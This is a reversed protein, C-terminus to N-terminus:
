LISSGSLLDEGVRTPLTAVSYFRWLHVNLLTVNALAPPTGCCAPPPCWYSNGLQSAGPQKLNLPVGVLSATGGFFVALDYLLEEEYDM